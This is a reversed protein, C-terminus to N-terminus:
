LSLSFLLAVSSFALFAFALSTVRLDLVDDSRSM